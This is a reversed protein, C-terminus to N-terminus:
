KYRPRFRIRGEIDGDPLTAISVDGPPLEFYEGGFDKLDTADEGNLLIEENEHDFTITDGTRAIYPTQDVTAESLEFVKIYNIKPAYAETSGSHKGIHIQVYKLRGQYENAGDIYDAEETLVHKAGDETLRAVYFEFRQGVRRMRIIGFFFDVNRSYDDSKLPYNENRGVYPGYRGEAAHYVLNTSNDMVAMKGLENMNEDFLYFEIRFTDTPSETRAQLHMKVEFDQAPEVEKILAPGHWRGTQEGYDPVTIGDGDTDLSGTVDGDVDTGTETWTDLSKGREELLLARTDVIEQDVDAPEGILMYREGDSVMAFTIPALVDLEFVPKTEATGPVNIITGQGTLASETQLGYKYPDPCIITLTGSHKFFYEDDEGSAEPIGFYTKNPEDSFSIPVPEDVSLIGNLDDIKTRLEERNVARIDAEIELVRMPRRKREFHAGDMGPPTLTSTEYEAIGRGTINKIKLYPSLDIGNFWM